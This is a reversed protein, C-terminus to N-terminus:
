VSKFSTFILALFFVKGAAGNLDTLTFVVSVPVCVDERRGAWTKENVNELIELYKMTNGPMPHASRTLSVHLFLFYKSHFSYLHYVLAGFENAM